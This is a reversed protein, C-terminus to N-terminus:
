QVRHGVAVQETVEGVLHDVPMVDPKREGREISFGPGASDKGAEDDGLTVGGVRVFLVVLEVTRRVNFAYPFAHTRRAWQAGGDHGRGSRYVSGGPRSLCRMPRSTTSGETPGHDNTRCYRGAGGEQLKAPFLLCPAPEESARSPDRHRSTISALM